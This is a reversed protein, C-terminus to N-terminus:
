KVRIKKVSSWKGYYKKGKYSKFCRVRVFYTKKKKLGTITKSSKNKSASVCKKNKTFKKNLAYQIQYGSVNSKKKWSVSVKKSKKNKLKVNTVKSPKKPKTIKKDIKKHGNEKLSNQPRSTVTSPVTSTKDDSITDEDAKKVTVNITAEHKGDETMATIRATGAGVATLLGYEGAEVVNSDSSSYTIWKYTANNPLVSATNTNVEGIEMQLSEKEFQISTCDVVVDTFKAIFRENQQISFSYTDKKSILNGDTDYWGLFSNNEDTIAKLSVYDGATLNEMSDATGIGEVTVDVSLQGLENKSYQETADISSNESDYLVVDSMSSDSTIAQKLTVGNEVPVSLYSIREMEGADADMLSLSYDMVGEDNGTLEINFDEDQPLIFVKSDGEVVMFIGNEITDDVVNDVIKGVINGDTDKVTVDVPCNVTAWFYSRKQRLQKESLVNMAALYTESRHACAFEEELIQHLGFYKITKIGTIGWYGMLANEIATKSMTDYPKTKSQNFGLTYTFLKQLSKKANKDKTDKGTLLDKTYYLNANSVTSTISKVYTYVARMGADYPIYDGKDEPRYKKYCEKLDPLYKTYYRVYNEMPIVTETSSSPLVFTQGYRGYGWASPMVKTVFDEPNVINYINSYKSDSRISLSTTNPTAYTYVFVDKNSISLSFGSKKLSNDDIKAGLLNAVAAGRSHGTILIKLKGDSLENEKVYDCIGDYVFDAGRLFGKHTSEGYGSDFNDIWEKNYTGRVVVCLINTKKGDLVVTKYALCYPAKDEDKDAVEKIQKYDLNSLADEMHKNNNGREDKPANYIMTSMGAAFVALDHHYTTADESFVTEDCSLDIKGVGADKQYLEGVTGVTKAVPYDSLDEDPETSSSGTGSFDVKTPTKLWTDSSSVNTQGDFIPDDQSNKITGCIGDYNNGWMYLSGDTKIVAHVFGASSHFHASVNELALQWIYPKESDISDLFSYHGTLYLKNDTTLISDNGISSVNEFIKTPKDGCEYLDNNNLLVYQNVGVFADKVNGVLKRPSYKGEETLQEFMECGDWQTTSFYARVGWIYLDDNVTIAYGYSEDVNAQRVGDMIFTPSANITEWLVEGGNWDSKYPKLGLGGPGWAYLRNDKTIVTVVYGDVNISKVNEMVKQPLLCDDDSNGNGLSGGKGCGWTYVDGSDTLAVGFYGLGLKVDIIHEMIKEPIYVNETKGTGLCKSDGSGWIYLDGNKKVAAFCGGAYDFCIVDEIVKIPSYRHDTGNSWSSNSDYYGNGWTYLEGGSTLAGAANYVDDFKVDVIKIQEEAARIYSAINEELVGCVIMVFSLIIVIIRKQKLIRAKWITIPLKDKNM